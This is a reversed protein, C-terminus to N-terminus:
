YHVRVRNSEVSKFSDRDPYQLIAYVDWDVHYPPIYPSWYEVYMTQDETIFDCIQPAYHGDPWTVRDKETAKVMRFVTCGWVAGKEFTVIFEKRDTTVIFAKRTNVITPAALAGTLALLLLYKM